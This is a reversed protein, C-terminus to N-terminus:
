NKKYRTSLGEKGASTYGEAKDLRIPRGAEGAQATGMHTDDAEGFYLKDGELGMINFHTISDELMLKFKWTDTGTAEGEIMFKGTKNSENGLIKNGSCDGSSYVSRTETYTNDLDRMTTEVIESKTSTWARCLRWKKNAVKEVFSKQAATITETAGQAPDTVSPDTPKTVVVENTKAAPKPAPKKKDKCAGLSLSLVCTLYIFGHSFSRM